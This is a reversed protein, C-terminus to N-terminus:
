FNMVDEINFQNKEFKPNKSIEVRDKWNRNLLPTVHGNSIM